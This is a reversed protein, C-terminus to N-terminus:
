RKLLSFEMRLTIAFLFRCFFFDVFTYDREEIRRGPIVLLMLFALSIGNEESLM